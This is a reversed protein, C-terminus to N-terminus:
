YKLRLLKYNTSTLNELLFIKSVPPTRNTSIWNKYITVKLYGKLDLNEELISLNLRWNGKLTEDIFIEEIRSNKNLYNGLQIKISENKPNLIEISIMENPVTWEFVIRTENKYDDKLSTKQSEFGKGIVKNMGFSHYLREMDHFIIDFSTKDIDNTRKQLFIEYLNWAENKKNFQLLSEAVDRYSKINNPDKVLLLRNLRLAINNDSKEYLYSILRLSDTSIESTNFMKSINEKKYPLKIQHPNFYKLRPYYMKDNKHRYDITNM